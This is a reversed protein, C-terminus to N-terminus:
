SQKAKSTRNARLQKTHMKKSMITPESDNSTGVRSEDFCGSLFLWVRSPNGAGTRGYIDDTYIPALLIM